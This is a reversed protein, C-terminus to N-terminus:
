HKAIGAKNTEGIPEAIVEVSAATNV